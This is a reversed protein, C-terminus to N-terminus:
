ETRSTSDLASLAKLGAEDKANAIQERLASTERELFDRVARDFRPDALHHVSTTETPEFGRLLK